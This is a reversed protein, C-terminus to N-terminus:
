LPKDLGTLALLLLEYRDPLQPDNVQKVQQMLEIIEESLKRRYANVNPGTGDFKLPQKSSDPINLNEAM